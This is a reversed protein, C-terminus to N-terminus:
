AVHENLFNLTRHRALIASPEHWAKNGHRNFAHGADPYIFVPIGKPELSAKVKEADALPISADTEGFHLMVPCKPKEDLAAAINGGYYGIAASLGSVRAASLWALSGGMCYGVIGVKGDGKLAELTAGIDLLMNDTSIAQRLARGQAVGEPDYGLEVDREARDFVAPVLVHFGDAAYGDAVWQMHPNVGFIEQIVVLGGRPKGAPKAEYAGFKHGDEAILEIFNGMKEEGYDKGEGKL